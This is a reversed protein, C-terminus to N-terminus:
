KWAMDIAYLFGDARPKWDLQSSVGFVLNQQWLFLLGAEDRFKEQIQCALDARVADDM